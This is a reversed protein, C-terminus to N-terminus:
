RCHYNSPGEFYKNIKYQDSLFFLFGGGAIMTKCQIVNPPFDFKYANNTLLAASIFGFQAHTIMTQHNFALLPRRPRSSYYNSKCSGTCDVSFNRTQVGNIALHVRYLMIPDLKDTVQPLDTTKEPYEPKRWWYFQGGLFLQFITSFPTLCWLAIM